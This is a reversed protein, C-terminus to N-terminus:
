TFMSLFFFKSGFSFFGSYPIHHQLRGAVKNLSNIHVIGMWAIQNVIINKVEKIQVFKKVYDTRLEERQETSSRSEPKAQVRAPLVPLRQWREQLQPKWREVIKSQPGGGSHHPPSASRFFQQQEPRVISSRM